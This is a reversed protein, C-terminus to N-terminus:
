LHLRKKLQIGRVLARGLKVLICTAGFSGPMYSQIIFDLAPTASSLLCSFPDKQPLVEQSM